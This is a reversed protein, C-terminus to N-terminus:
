RTAKRNMANTKTDTEQLASWMIDASARIAREDLARGAVRNQKVFGVFAGFAMAMLMEPSGERMAGDAQAGRVYTTVSADIDSALARSEDDLYAEHHQGELFALAAPHETAFECQGRWILRFREEHTGGTAVASALLDRFAGKWRRYLANVLAEKSDFYRYITGAAVGAREAILPVPTGDFTREAFLDLAAALISERKDSAPPATTSIAGTIVFHINM